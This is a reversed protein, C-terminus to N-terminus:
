WSIVKKHVLTLSVFEDYSILQHNQYHESLGRAVVDNEILKVSYQHLYDHQQLGQALPYVADGSLVITDDQQVYALCVALANDQNTSTSIHHLVNM